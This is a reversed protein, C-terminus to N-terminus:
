PSPSFLAMLFTQSGCPPRRGWGRSPASCSLSAAACGLLGLVAVLLAAGFTPLASGSGARRPLAAAEGKKERAIKRVGERFESLAQLYPM